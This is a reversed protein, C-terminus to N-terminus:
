RRVCLHSDALARLLFAKSSSHHSIEGQNGERLRELGPQRLLKLNSGVSNQPEQILIELHM